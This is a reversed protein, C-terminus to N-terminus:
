PFVIPSALELSPILLPILTVLLNRIPSPVTTSPRPMTTPISGRYFAGAGARARTQVKQRARRASLFSHTTEKQNNNKLVSRKWTRYPSILLAPCAKRTGSWCSGHSTAASPTRSSILLLMPGIPPCPRHPDASETHPKSRKNKASKPPSPARLVHASGANPGSPRAMTSHGPHGRPSEDNQEIFHKLSAHRNWTHAPKLFTRVALM